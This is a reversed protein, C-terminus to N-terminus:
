RFPLAPRAPGAQQPSSLLPAICFQFGFLCLRAFIRGQRFGCYETALWNSCMAAYDADFFVGGGEESARREYVVGALM